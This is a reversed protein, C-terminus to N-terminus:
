GANAPKPKPSYVYVQKEDNWDFLWHLRSVIESLYPNTKMDHLTIVDREFMRRLPVTKNDDADM